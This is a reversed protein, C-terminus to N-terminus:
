FNALEVPAHFFLVAVDCVKLARDTNKKATARSNFDM